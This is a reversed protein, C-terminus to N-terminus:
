SLNKGNAVTPLNSKKGYLTAAVQEITMGHKLDKYLETLRVEEKTAAAVIDPVVCTIALFVIIMVKGLLKMM